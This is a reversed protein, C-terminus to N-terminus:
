GSGGMDTVRRDLLGSETQDRKIAEGDGTTPPKHAYIHHLDNHGGGAMSM